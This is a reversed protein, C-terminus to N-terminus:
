QRLAQQHAGLPRGGPLARSGNSGGTSRRDEYQGGGAIRGRRILPPDVQRATEIVPMQDCPIREVVRSVALTRRADIVRHIGVQEGPLHGLAIESAGSQYGLPTYTWPPAMGPYVASLSASTLRSFRTSPWTRPRCRM